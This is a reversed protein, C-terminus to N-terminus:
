ALQREVNRPGSLLSPPIPSMRGHFVQAERSGPRPPPPPPPGPRGFGPHSPPPHPMPHPQLMQPTHPGGVTLRNYDGPFQPTHYGYQTTQPHISTNYGMSRTPDGPLSVLSANLTRTIDEITVEM